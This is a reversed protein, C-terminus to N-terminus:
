RVISAGAKGASSARDAAARQTEGMAQIGKYGAWAMMASWIAPFGIYFTVLVFNLIARKQIGNIEWPSTLLHSILSDADPYLAGILRDDLWRAVFWMFPWMKVTFIALVGAFAVRPDYCGICLVFPMFMYMAMLVLPQAIAISDVIPGRIVSGAFGELWTGALGLVEPAAATLKQLQSRDDGRNGVMSLFSPRSKEVGLKALADLRQEDSAGGALGVIKHLYESLTSLQAIMKARIGKSGDAWWQECNPRGAEPKVDNAAVDADQYADLPWGSVPAQAFMAPYLTTDTRFAHSGAWETDSAGYTSIAAQTAASPPQALLYKSRAPIFCENQFRQVEARLVPDTISAAQVQAELERFGERNSAIGAKAAESIGASLSMVAYWMVPVEVSAPAGAFATNYTSGSNAASVRTPSPNVTTAEESYTLRVQSITTFPTPAFFLSLVILAGGLEVEMKRIMWAADAGEIAISQHAEAWTRILIVGLPVYLLGTDVIIGRLVASFAWGYMTTFLELYSDVGM